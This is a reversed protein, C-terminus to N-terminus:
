DCGRGIEGRNSPSTFKQWPRWGRPCYFGWERVRPGTIFLTWVPKGDVLVIRHPSPGWRFYARCAKRIRSVTKPRGLFDFLVVPYQPLIETYRGKLVVSVNWQYPHDHLARDDDDALFQHLYVNFWENRPVVWWRRLYPKEPPGIV